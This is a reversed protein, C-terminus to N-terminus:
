RNGPTSVAPVASQRQGGRPMCLLLSPWLSPCSSPLPLRFTRSLPIHMHAWQLQTSPTGHKGGLHQIPFFGCSSSFASHLDTLCLAAHSRAERGEHQTFASATCYCAKDCGRGKPFPCGQTKRLSDSHQILLYTVNWGTPTPTAGVSDRPLSSCDPNILIVWVRYLLSGWHRHMTRTLTSQGIWYLFTRAAQQTTGTRFPSSEERGKGAGWPIRRMWMCFWLAVGAPVCRQGSQPHPGSGGGARVSSEDCRGEAAAWPCHSLRQGRPQVARLPRPISSGHQPRRVVLPWPRPRSGASRCRQCPRSSRGARGMPAGTVVAPPCQM